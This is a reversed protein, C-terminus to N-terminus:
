HRNELTNIFLVTAMKLLGTDNAHLMKGRGFWVAYEKEFRCNLVM